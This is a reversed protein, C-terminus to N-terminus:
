ILYHEEQEDEVMLWVKEASNPVIENLKEFPKEHDVFEFPKVKFDEWWWRRDGSSVFSSLLELYLKKGSDFDLLTIQENTYKLGKIATAIEQHVEGMIM